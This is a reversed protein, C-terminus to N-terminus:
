VCSADRSKQRGTIAAIMISMRGMSWPNVHHQVLGRDVGNELSSRGQTRSNIADVFFFKSESDLL